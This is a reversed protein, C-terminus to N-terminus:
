LNQGLLKQVITGGFSHGILIPLRDSSQIIKAYHTVIDDIGHDAERDPEARAIEVTDAEEPWGPATATSGAEAFAEIWPYWSASHLWLGHIFVVPPKSTPADTM